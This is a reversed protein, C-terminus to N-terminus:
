GFFFPNTYIARSLDGTFVIKVQRSAAIDNPTLDPLRQWGNPGITNALSDHAVFYTYENVGTGPPEMGAQEEPAEGEGEGEGEGGGAGTVEVIYYDRKTGWIKGFFRM